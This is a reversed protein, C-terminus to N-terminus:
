VETLLAGFGCEVLQAVNRSKMHDFQSSTSLHYLKHDLARQPFPSPIIILLEAINLVVDFKKKEEWLRAENM